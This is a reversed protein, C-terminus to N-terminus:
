ALSLVKKAEKTNHTDMLKARLDKAGPFNNIYIKIFHKMPEYSPIHSYTKESGSRERRDNCPESALKSGNDCVSAFTELEALLEEAIVMPPKKLEKALKLPANTSYDSDINEPSPTIEPDFDLNYLDKIVQQLTEKIQEM